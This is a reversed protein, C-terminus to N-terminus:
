SSSHVNPASTTPRPPSPMVRRAACTVAKLAGRSELLAEREGGLQVGDICEAIKIAVAEEIKGNLDLVGSAQTATEGNHMADITRHVDDAGALRNPVAPVRQATPRCPPNLGRRVVVATKPVPGIQQVHRLFEPGIAAPEHPISRRVHPNLRILM